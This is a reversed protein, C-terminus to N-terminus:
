RGPPLAVGGPLPKDIPTDTLWYAILTKITEFDVTLGCTGPVSVDELWFAIAAQIQDFQIVNSLSVDIDNTVTDLHAIAVPVTLCEVLEVETDGGTPVEFRPVIGQSKGSFRVFGTSEGEPVVVEYLITKRTGELLRETFVWERTAKKFVAGASEIPRIEWNAPFLEKLGYGSLDSLAEIDLRVRFVRGPENPLYVQGFPLPTLITRTVAAGQAFRDPIPEDVPVGELQRAALEKLMEWDILANCTAPVGADELWYAVARQLQDATIFEDLRLDVVDQANLHAIAVPISLCDVLCIQSEGGVPQIFAPSASQVIGTIEFCRPLEGVVAEPKVTVDYVVRRIENAQITEAWIFQTEARKFTAGATDIPTVEFGPPLDEDLGLGNVAIGLQIEITVRFTLGVAAEPTSISRVVRARIELVRVTKTITASIGQDDTVKLTVKVEGVATFTHQVVPDATSVEFIGDGDFDWEYRVITRGPAPRSARADFTVPVGVGPAEPSWVFDPTPPVGRQARLTVPETLSPILVTEPNLPDDTGSLAAWETIGSTFQPTITIAFDQPLPGIAGGDNYGAQWTWSVEATGTTPDLTWQDDPDDQVQFQAGQPVGELTFTVSGAGGDARSHVIVLSYEGTTEDLYLFLLSRGVVEFGLNSQFNTYNYFSAVDLTGRIPRLTTSFGGQELTFFLGSAAVQARAEPAEPSGLWLLSLSLILVGLLPALGIRGRM